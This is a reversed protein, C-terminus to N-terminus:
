SPKNVEDAGVPEAVLMQGESELFWEEPTRDRLRLFHGDGVGMTDGPAFTQGSERLYALVNSFLGFTATGEHHGEARIALDPLRFAHCGYTRMWVGPEGEVELKVFGAYLFPLPLSRIARLTDGADEEHPLLAPAPISTHATENMAITAGFRALAAAGAALAVHQELPDAEYGAYYLLAHSAHRYAEEKLVPDYHAPLVCREVASAPMPADFGVLKVVHRGWALLGMVGAPGAPGGPGGPMPPPAPVRVLEATAEALEPHYGRLALALADPNLDLPAPFLLQFSPPDALRPNAVPPGGPQSVGKGFFRDQLEMEIGQGASLNPCTECPKEANEDRKV